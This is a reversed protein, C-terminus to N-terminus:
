PLTMRYFMIGLREHLAAATLSLASPSPLFTYPTLTIRPSYRFDAPLPTVNLGNREFILVARKMHYASTVLLPKRFHHRRCIEAVFRANEGTDRSKDEIFIRDPAIGFDKLFRQVIWAEPTDKKSLAGGSVIVPAGTLRHARVATALRVMLEGSPSGTGTLDPVRDRVGGGLLIIVDGQIRPPIAVGQEVGKMLSNAAPDLSGGWLVAALMLFIFGCSANRRRVAWIGAIVCVVIFCGPPLLFATIIKKILLM